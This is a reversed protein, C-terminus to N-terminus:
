RGHKNRGLIGKKVFGSKIIRGDIHIGGLHERKKLAV